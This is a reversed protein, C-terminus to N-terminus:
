IYINKFCYSRRMPYKLYLMIKNTTEDTSVIHYHITLFLQGFITKSFHLIHDMYTRANIQNSDHYISMSGNLRAQATM